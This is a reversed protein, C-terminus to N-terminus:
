NKQPVSRFFGGFMAMKGTLDGKGPVVQDM